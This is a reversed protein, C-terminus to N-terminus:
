NTLASCEYHKPERNSDSCAWWILFNFDHALGICEVIFGHHFVEQVRAVHAIQLVGISNTFYARGCAAVNHLYAELDLIADDLVSAELGETAARGDGAGAHRGFEDLATANVLRHAERVLFNHIREATQRRHFDVAGDEGLFGQLGREFIIQLFM